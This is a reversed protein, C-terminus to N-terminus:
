FFYLSHMPVTYVCIPMVLAFLQPSMIRYTRHTLMCRTPSCSVFAKFSSVDLQSVATTDTLHLCACCWRGEVDLSWVCDRDGVGCVCRSLRRSFSRGFEQRNM